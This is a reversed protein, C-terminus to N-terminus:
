KAIVSGNKKIIWINLLDNCLAAVNPSGIGTAV